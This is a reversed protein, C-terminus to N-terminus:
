EVHGNRAAGNRYFRCPLRRLIGFLAAREDSKFVGWVGGVIILLGTLLSVLCVRLFSPSVQRSVFIGLVIALFSLICVPIVVSELWKRVSVNLQWRCFNVRAVAYLLMTACLILPLWYPPLGYKFLFYSIPIASVLIIGNTIEYVVIRKGYANAALMYGVSLKDFLLMILMSSCFVAAYQPPDNLWTKLVWDIEVMLPVAFVLVLVVCIRCASEALRMMGTRNQAGERTAVAPQLAGVLAQSLAATHGSVQTSLSYAANIQPGFFINLLLAGGQTRAIVCIAGFVKAGAFTFFSRLRSKDFLYTKRIRCMDFRVYAWVIQAVSFFITVTSMYGAYYILKDNPVFSISYAFAFSVFSQVIGIISVEWILQHAQFMAIYPVSIMSVFASILSLRFVWLCAITREAPIVLWNNIAYVGIPYGVLVLMIPLASHITVATNFWRCIDADGIEKAVTKGYGISYAYFRSVAGAMTTNLFTIFVILSGVVGYLGWDVQGIGMFIWRVSFLGLIVAIVSRGYTAVANLIIRTKDTM